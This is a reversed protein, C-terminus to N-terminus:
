ALLFNQNGFHHVLKDFLDSLSTSLPQVEALFELHHSKIDNSAKRKSCVKTTNPGTHLYCLSLCEMPSIQSKLAFLMWPDRDYQTGQVLAGKGVSEFPKWTDGPNDLSEHGSHDLSENFICLFVLSIRDVQHCLLLLTM